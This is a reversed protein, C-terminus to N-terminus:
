NKKGFKLLNKIKDEAKKKTQDALRKLSDEKAKAQEALVKKVSDERAKLQAKTDVVASSDVLKSVAPDKIVKGKNDAVGQLLKDKAASKVQDKLNEKSFANGLVFKPDTFSQTMKIPLKINQSTNGGGTVSSVLSNFKAGYSGAPIDMELTYDITGDLGTSGSILTNFDGLKVTYPKVNLKGDKIETQLLLDKIAVNTGVKDLNTLSAIGTTIKNKELVAEVVNVLGSGTITGLKPMMDKGLQGNLAFNTSFNGNVFQAIPAFAKVTNFTMYSEKISINKMDLDFDFTPRDLDRTDYSGNVVFAGGLTNFNVKDLMVRGGKILVNGKVNKLTMNDYDVEGISASLQFDINKPIEVIETEYTATDETVEGETVMWENVDFKNSKFDMKGKISEGEKFLYNMYNSINGTLQMDSKGIKGKFSNLKIKEPDFVTTAQDIKMGQPFDAASVFVFDRVNLTGSTSIKDYREAELDSMKGKSAINAEILGAVQMSDLPFIKTLKELNLKGNIHADWQYNELDRLTLDGTFEEGDLLMGLQKVEILTGAMSGDENKVSSVFNVNELPIPYEAYKFYGQKLSMDAAVSPFKGQLSDYIGNAKLELNYMGKMDLGEVPFTTNLAALDLSALVEANIKSRSLGEIRAVAKVPNGGFDMNFKKIDILTNDIVGDKNDLVLDISIDKVAKPLDPYQFMADDVKLNLNFAPMQQDNYVGNVKGNFALSGKTKIDEFGETFVGPVLSLLNKFDNEASAFAIDMTYGTEPMSFSGDFNMAFDNVKLTNDKFTFKMAPLDMNLVMSLDVKKNTLYDIGDFQIDAREVSTQTDLDLVDLTFDGSGLHNLGELKMVYPISQDDYTLKGDIIEWHDIRIAMNSPAATTDQEVEESEVAIDYNAKGNELVKILINPHTLTIGSIRINDGFLLHRLNVELEFKEVALLVDEAFEDRGIIGLEEM